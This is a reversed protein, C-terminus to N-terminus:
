KFFFLSSTVVPLILFDDDDLKILSFKIQDPGCVARVTHREDTLTSTTLESIKTIPDWGLWYYSSIEPINRPRVALGIDGETRNRSVVSQTCSESGNCTIMACLMKILPVDQTESNNMLDVSQTCSESGNCSDTDFSTWCMVSLGCRTLDRM